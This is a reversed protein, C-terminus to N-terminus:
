RGTEGRRRAQFFVLLAASLILLGGLASLGDPVENWLAFGFIASFVITGYSYLAVEAAPGHRFAHTLGFQGGAAGLGIGLM